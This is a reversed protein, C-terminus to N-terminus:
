LMPVDMPQYDRRGGGGSTRSNRSSSRMPVLGLSEFAHHTLGGFVFVTFLITTSTMSRLEPRFKTGTKTAVDFVPISHVLALSVAGRLGSLVLAIQMKRDINVSHTLTDTTRGTVVTPASGVTADDPQPRLSASRPSPTRRCLRLARQLAHGCGLLDMLNNAATVVIVMVARGVVCAFVATANLGFAWTYKRSFLFAGLYAFILTESISSFVEFVFAIHTRAEPSLQGRVSFTRTIKRWSNGLCDGTNDGFSSNENEPIPELHDDDLLLSRAGGADDSHRRAEDNGIVYIDMFFGSTVVAVISSLDVHSIDCIYYPILAWFFFVSVEVVPTMSGRLYWFMANAISSTALGVAVSGHLVVLFNGVGRWIEADNLSDVDDRGLFGCLTDFLVIALGDNLLSEGFLIVYLPDTDSMGVSDLVNLIVVPDVSSILAGFILSELLPLRMEVSVRSTIGYVLLGTLFASVLTGVIAYMMIPISHLRFARKNINLASSFVIPPLLIVLFIDKNFSLDDVTFGAGGEKKQKMLRLVGGAAAGVLICAGAEPLWRLDHHRVLSRVLGCLVFIVSLILLSYDTEETVSAKCNKGMYALMYNCCRWQEIFDDLQEIASQGSDVDNNEQACGMNKTLSRIEECVDGADTHNATLKTIKLQCKQDENDVDSAGNSDNKNIASPSPHEEARQKQQQQRQQQQQQRQTQQYKKAADGGNPSQPLVPSRHQHFPLDGRRGAVNANATAPKNNERVPGMSTSADLRALCVCTVILAVALQVARRQKTRHADDISPTPFTNTSSPACLEMTAANNNRRSTTSTSSTDELDM